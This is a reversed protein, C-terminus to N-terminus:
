RRHRSLGAGHMVKERAEQVREYHQVLRELVEALQGSAEGARIMSVYLTPSRTPGSAGARRLPERGPRDRRAPETVIQTRRRTPRARHSLTHLANGLTM